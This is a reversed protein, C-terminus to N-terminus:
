RGVPGHPRPLEARAVVLARVEAAGAERLVRACAELTAGTTRVDDVLVLVRNQVFVPVPRWPWRVLAFAHDVNRQRGSAALRTQSPTWRRRRLARLVPVGLQGAIVEAQNFGRQLRKLPHLPVPVVADVGDLLDGARERAMGGLRSAISSFGEYKMQQILTRLVHEYTGCARLQAVAPNAGRCRGCRRRQGTSRWSPFTGGCVECQPEDTFPIAGWCDPCVPGGATTTLPHRCSVCEPALLTCGVSWIVASALALAQARTPPDPPSNTGSRTAGSGSWTM